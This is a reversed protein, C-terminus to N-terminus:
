AGVSQLPRRFKIVAGRFVAPCGGFIDRLRPLSTGKSIGGRTMLFLKNWVDPPQLSLLVGGPEGDARQL